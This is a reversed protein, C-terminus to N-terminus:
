VFSILYQFLNCKVSCLSEGHIEKVLEPQNKLFRAAYKVMKLRISPEIDNFRKMFTGFLQPYNMILTSGETAFMEGLLEVTSLRKDKDEVTLEKELEPMIYLLLGPSIKTLEWILEHGHGKLESESGKVNVLIDNIFQTIVPEM